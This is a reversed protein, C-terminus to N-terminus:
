LENLFENLTQKKGKISRLTKVQDFAEKLDSKLELAQEYRRLKAIIKNWEAVPLQVAQTHGNTDNVYQLAIKM